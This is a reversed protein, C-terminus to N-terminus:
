PVVEFKGTVTDLVVDGAYADASTRWTYKGHSALVVTVDIYRNISPVYIMAHDAWNDPVSFSLPTMGLANFLVPHSAMGSKKLLAYLLTAFGKCDTKGSALIGAVDQDPYSGDLKDDYGINRSRVYRVAADIKQEATGTFTPLQGVGELAQAQARMYRRAAGGWSCLPSVTVYDPRASPVWGSELLVRFTGSGETSYQYHMGSNRVSACVTPGHASNVIVYYRVHEDHGVVRSFAWIARSSRWRLSFDADFRLWRELKGGHVMSPVCLPCQLDTAFPVWRRTALDYAAVKVRKADGAFRAKVKRNWFTVAVQNQMPVFTVTHEEVNGDNSFNLEVFVCLDSSRLCVTQFHALNAGATAGAAGEPALTLFMACSVIASVIGKMSPGKSTRSQSSQFREVMGRGTLFPSLRQAADTVAHKPLM